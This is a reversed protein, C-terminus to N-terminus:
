FASSTALPSSTLLSVELKIWITQCILVYKHLLHHLWKFLPCHRFIHFAIFVLWVHTLDGTSDGTSLWWPIGLALQWKSSLLLWIATQMYCNWGLIWPSEIIEDGKYVTRKMGSPCSGLGCVHGKLERSISRDVSKMWSLLRTEGHQNDLQEALEEAERLQQEKRLTEGGEESRGKWKRHEGCAQKVKTM